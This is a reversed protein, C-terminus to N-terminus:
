EGEHLALVLCRRIPSPEGEPDFNEEPGWARFVADIWEQAYAYRQEHERQTVGFMNFEDTNWGCVVNLGFRGKGIHDATVFAKAAIIPHILPAHVTGFVVINNTSALLGAAWTVTELTAGQYDTEGGYGKWRGIPLMFDIAADDAM